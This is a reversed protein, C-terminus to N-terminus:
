HHAIAVTPGAGHYKVTKCFEALLDYDTGLNDYAEEEGARDGVEEAIAMCQTNCDVRRPM